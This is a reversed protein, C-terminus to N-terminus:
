DSLAFEVNFKVGEADYYYVHYKSLDYVAYEDDPWYDDSRFGKSLELLNAHYKRGLKIQEPYITELSQLDRLQGFWHAFGPIDSYSDWNYPFDPGRKTMVDLTSLVSELSAEDRGRVFPGAVFTKYDDGDGWMTEVEVVFSGLPVEPVPVPTTVEIRM